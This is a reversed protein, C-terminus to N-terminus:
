SVSSVFCRSFPVCKTFDNCPQNVKFRIFLKFRKRQKIDAMVNFRSEHHWCVEMAPFFFLFVGMFLLIALFDDIEEPSTKIPDKLEQASYLNTYQGIHEIMKDTFLTKFYQFHTKVADPPKLDQILVRFHRLTKM